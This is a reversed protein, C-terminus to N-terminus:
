IDKVSLLPHTTPRARVERTQRDLEYGRERRGLHKPRKGGERERVPDRISKM